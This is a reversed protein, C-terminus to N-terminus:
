RIFQFNCSISELNKMDISEILIGHNKRKKEIPPQYIIGTMLWRDRKTAWASRGM